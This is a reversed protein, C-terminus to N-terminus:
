ALPHFKPDGSDRSLSSQDDILLNRCEETRPSSNYSNYVPNEFNSLKEDETDLSYALNLGTTISDDGMDGDFIPNRIELNGHTENM